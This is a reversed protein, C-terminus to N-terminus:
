DQIDFNFFHSGAQLRWPTATSSDENRQLRYCRNGLPAFLPRPQGSRKFTGFGFRPIVKSRM